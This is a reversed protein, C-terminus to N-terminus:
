EGALLGRDKVAKDGTGVLRIVTREFLGIKRAKDAEFFALLLTQIRLGSVCAILPTHADTGRSPLQACLLRRQAVVGPFHSLITHSVVAM